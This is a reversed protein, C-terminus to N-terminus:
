FSLLLVILPILIRLSLKTKLYFLPYIYTLLNPYTYTLLNPYIRDQNKVVETHREYAVFSQRSYFLLCIIPLFARVMQVSGRADVKLDEEEVSKHHPFKPLM